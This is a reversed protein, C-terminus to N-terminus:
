KFRNRILEDILMLLSYTPNASGPSPLSATSLCFLNSINKLNLSPLNILKSYKNNLSGCPHYADFPNWDKNNIIEYDINVKMGYFKMILISNSIAKNRILYSEQESLGWNLTRTQKEYNFEIFREKSFPTEFDYSLYLDSDEPTYIKNQMYRDTSYKILGSFTKLPSVKKFDPIRRQQISIALEKVAQFEKSSKTDECFHFFSRTNTDKFIYRNGIILNNNIKRSIVNTIKQKGKKLIKIVPTSLHDNFYFKNKTFLLKKNDFLLKNNRILNSIHFTSELTGTCLMFNEASVYIHQNTKLNLFIAKSILNINNLNSKKLEFREFKHFTNIKFNNNILSKSFDRRKFPIYLNKTEYFNNENYQNNNRWFEFIDEFNDSNQGILESILRKHNFKKFINEIDAFGNSYSDKKDFDSYTFPLISAGWLYTTGGIGFSRGLSSGEYKKRGTSKFNLNLDNDNQHIEGGIDFILIKKKNEVLKKAAFIGAAGSGIICFDTHIEEM